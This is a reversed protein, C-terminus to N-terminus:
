DDAGQGNYQNMAAELGQTVFVLVADMARQLTFELAELEDRAFPQLV